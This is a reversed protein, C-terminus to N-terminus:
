VFALVVVFISPLPQFFVHYLACIWCLGVLEVFLALVLWGLRGRRSTMLTLGAVGLSLLAIVLYQWPGAVLRTITRYHSVLHQVPLELRLLLGTAHLAGVLAAVTFGIILTAALSRKM